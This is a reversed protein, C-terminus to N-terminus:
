VCRFHIHKKTVPSPNKINLQHYLTGRVKIGGNIDLVFYISVFSSANLKRKVRHVHVHYMNM